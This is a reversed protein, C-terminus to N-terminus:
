KCASKQLRSTIAEREESSLIRPASIKIWSVPVHVCITGDLNEVYDVEDPRSKKLKKIKNVFRKKHLSLTATSDESFFEIANEHFERM